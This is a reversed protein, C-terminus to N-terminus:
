NTAEGFSLKYSRRVFAAEEFSLKCLRPANNVHVTCLFAISSVTYEPAVDWPQNGLLCVSPFVELDLLQPILVVPVYTRLIETTCSISCASCPEKLHRRDKKSGENSV